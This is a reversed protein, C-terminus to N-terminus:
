GGRGSAAQSAPSIVRPAFTLEVRPRASDVACEIVGVSLTKWDDDDIIGADVVGDIYPKCGNALNLADRRRRSSLYFQMSVIALTMTRTEHLLRLRTAEMHAHHRMKRTAEAKGRWHGKAHGSLVYPPLPLSLTITHKRREADIRAATDADLPLKTLSAIDRSTLTM